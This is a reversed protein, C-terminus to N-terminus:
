QKEITHGGENFSIYAFIKQQNRKRMTIMHDWPRYVWSFKEGYKKTFDEFAAEIQKETPTYFNM